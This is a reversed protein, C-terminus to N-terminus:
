GDGMEKEQRHRALRRRGHIIYGAALGKSQDIPHAVGGHAADAADGVGVDGLSEVHRHQQNALRANPVGHIGM